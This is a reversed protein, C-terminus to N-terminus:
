LHLPEVYNAPLLGRQGTRQVTGTMWGEDIPVCNVILDGDVFGVEDTDMASYDYIARFNYSTSRMQQVQVKASSAAHGTPQQHMQMQQM